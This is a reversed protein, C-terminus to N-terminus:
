RSIVRQSANASSAQATTIRRKKEELEAIELRRVWDLQKNELESVEAKLRIYDIVRPQESDEEERLGKNINAAVRKAEAVRRCM